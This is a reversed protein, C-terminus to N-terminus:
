NSEKNEDRRKRKLFSFISKKDEKKEESEKQIEEKPKETETKEELREKIKGELEDKKKKLEEIENEKRKIDEMLITIKRDLNKVKTKLFIIKPLHYLWVIVGGVLLVGIIVFGVPIPTPTEWRLFKITVPTTGNQFLFILTLIFLILYIITRIM